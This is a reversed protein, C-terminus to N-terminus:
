QTLNLGLTPSCMSASISARHPPHPSHPPSPHAAPATPTAPATPASTAAPAALPPPLAAPAAMSQWSSSAPRWPFPSREREREREREAGASAPRRILVYAHVAPALFSLETLEPPSCVSLRSSEAIVGTGFNRRAHATRMPARAGHATDRDM